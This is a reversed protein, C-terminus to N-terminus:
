GIAYNVVGVSLLSCALKLVFVCGIPDVSKVNYGMFYVLPDARACRARLVCVKQESVM